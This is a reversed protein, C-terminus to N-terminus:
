YNELNTHKNNHKEKYAKDRRSRSNSLGYLTKDVEPHGQTWHSLSPNFGINGPVYQRSSREYDIKKFSVGFDRPDKTNRGYSTYIDLSQLGSNERINEREKKTVNCMFFAIGKINKKKFTNPDFAKSYDSATSEDGYKHGHVVLYNKDKDSMGDIIKKLEKNGSKEIEKESLREDKHKRKWEEKFHRRQEGNKDHADKKIKDWVADEKAKKDEKSLKDWSKKTDKEYGDKAMDTIYDNDVAYHVKLGLPDIHNIPNNHCYLYNNPGDPYGSPDRTVFRGLEWDFYRFGFNDLGISASREKTCFKRTNTTSGTERVEKGFAEYDTTATVNGTSNLLAVTSGIANYVFFEQNQASGDETYLVSGIGGGMGTGRVLQKTLSGAVYEQINDGGDYVYNTETGNEVKSMRRTRYDYTATFIDSSGDNVSKLRNERDYVYNHTVGDKVKSLRNGNADYTYTTTLSGDNFSIVRNLKDVAYTWTTSGDSRVVRNGAHDYAYTTTVSSGLVNDNESTM